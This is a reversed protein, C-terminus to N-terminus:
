ESIFFIINALSKHSVGADSRVGSAKALNTLDVFKLFVLIFISVGFCTSFFHSPSNHHTHFALVAFGYKTIKSLIISL